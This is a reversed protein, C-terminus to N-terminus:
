ATWEGSMWRNIMDSAAEPQDYPVMHGAKFIKVFTFNHSTKVRGYREGDEDGGYTLFGLEAENFADRHAWELREVWAKIGLWNCIFDADGVYILFPIEELVKATLRYFPKMWDGTLTFDRNVDWNCSGYHDVESGVAEIVEPQNLYDTVYKIGTYCLNAEDECPDRIDYPNRGSRTYPLILANNCYLHAPVCTWASETDYCRQILSQCRDLSKDMVECEPEELVAPWGGAGDCAYPKYYAYQTLVDSLGNGVMASKININRHTHSLIEAAMAPIYHGGYSEGALHFDQTAYEPFQHFFLSLMAYIDKASQTSDKVAKPSHSYGVNVPQEIFIVSANNNWAHPNRVPELKENIRAPGLEFFLGVMSSCGPGGNLWLIVPDNKPDNRSEFFWFFLHKDEEYQDLYGSYQKVDDVKLKSPDVSKVRLGYDSLEGDVKRHTEGETEVVIDAVDAGKVHFDYDSAPRRTAPEPQALTAKKFTELAGPVLMSVENWTAKIESSAEGWLNELPSWWSDTDIAGFDVTPLKGGNLVKQEQALASSAAAAGLALVSQSLRM